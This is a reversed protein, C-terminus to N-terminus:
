NEDKARKKNRRAIKDKELLHTIGAIDNVPLSFCLGKTPTNLNAQKVIERMIKARNEKQTIVLVLEKEPQIAIGMFSDQEHVGMGRGSIITAGTAGASKAADVVYDSFGKNIIAVVLDFKANEKSM